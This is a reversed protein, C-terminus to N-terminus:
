REAQKLEVARITEPLVDSVRVQQVGREGPPCVPCHVYVGPSSTDGYSDYSSTYWGHILDAIEIELESRCLRCTVTKPWTEEIPTGKKLIRM